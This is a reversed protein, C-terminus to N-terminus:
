IAARGDQSGIPVVGTALGRARAGGGGRLSVHGFVDVVDKQPLIRNAIVIDRIARELEAKM